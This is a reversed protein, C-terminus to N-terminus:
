SRRQAVEILNGDPDRFYLSTIPGAAVARPVPGLDIEVGVHKLHEHLESIPRRTLLCIDASGRTPTDPFIDVDENPGHLNIKQAGFRLATRKTDFTERRMGLSRQYFECTADIDAVTLVLHDLSDIWESEIAPEAQETLQPPLAKPGDPYIFALTEETMELTNASENPAGAIIWLAPIEGDNFIQRTVQPEVLVSSHPAFTHLDGNIYMRGEGELLVYLEHTESHRHKTSAQGPALKWMRMGLTTTGTAKALDVNEVRMQNSPRWLLDAANIVTYGASTETSTSM